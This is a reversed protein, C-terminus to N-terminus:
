VVQCRHHVKPTKPEPVHVSNSSAELCRKYPQPLNASTNLHKLMRNAGSASIIPTKSSRWGYIRQPNLPRATWSGTEWFVPTGNQPEVHCLNCYKPDMNACGGILSGFRCGLALQPGIARWKKRWSIGAPQLVDRLVLIGWVGRSGFGIDLWM